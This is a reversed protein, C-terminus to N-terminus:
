APRVLTARVRAALYGPIAVMALATASVILFSFIAILVGVSITIPFGTVTTLAHSIVLQGYLGAVAGILCGAGLLVASEFLLSRWILGKGCGTRKLFGIRERRQWILSIMVFAMALIAAILVITKIQTLRALGQGSLRAWQAEREAATQVALGSGAPLAHIIRIRAEGPAVDAAVRVNLASAANSGWARAYDEANIVVAGPPWGGNTSLGAVRFSMPEPAPLTFSEGIHLHLEHAVAESLVAWGHGRLRSNAQGANGQTLQGAPMLEASQRPPAIVWVRRDGVDLFSGRYVAVSRVGETHEVASALSAPFPTTALSNDDGSPYVWIDAARNWEHSASNLGSQLNHQAGAIAVTGFVALAGTSAVALSRVSTMTDKLEGVALRTATSAFPRQAWAFGLVIGRFLFPLLALGAIVLTIVAVVASQPRFLVIVTTILLGLIGTSVRLLTWGRPQREVEVQSRLPQALIHRLPALVGVLAALCGAVVSLAVTSFGVIRPNGVPFAFALYGPTSHFLAMSLLEGLGIGLVSATVGIVLADFVLAQVITPRTYGRRRMTTILRQREAVTLLMANFAFLFGVVASIVSFLTEGQEAPASAVAFLRADFEAPVANLHNAAALRKLGADARAQQGPVVKIYVRSIRGPMKALKQAYSLPALAVQSAALEGVESEGLRAGLLTEVRSTGIQLKVDEFASAGISAAVSDPVAIVKAHALQRASLKRLLRGGLHAFRPDAGILDVSAEGRPGIVVAPQELLPLAARVGPLSGAERGVREPFGEPGRADLQYQTGGVLQRTLQRVSGDLSQSAVQSAFLLAVGIAIGVIALVEQGIVAREKLRARFVFVIEGLPVAGRVRKRLRGVPSVPLDTDLQQEPGRAEHTSTM